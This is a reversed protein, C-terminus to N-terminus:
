KLSSAPATASLSCNRRACGHLPTVSSTEPAVRRASRPAVAKTKDTQPRVPTAPQATAPAPRYSDNRRLLAWLVRANMNALAVAAINTGGRQRQKIRSVWVSRADRRREAVSVVARAGHILLTRLYRDGRKSIGLTVERNGSKRHAPVLGLWAALARGSKFQRADGVAGIMATAALPGIGEVAVLRRCREDEACLRGIKFDYHKIRADSLRLREGMEAMLERMLGGLRGDRDELILALAHRLRSLGKGVVMGREALLGRMENALATRTKILQARVRHLALLDQQEVTKVPVFRMSPRTVAECIGEADNPDSKNSKVYAKVFKPNILKIEHGFKQIERAWYHASGCAEMGVVCRPLNAMFPLVKERTLRKRLLPRGESDVGHLQFVSKALDIGITKIEMEQVRGNDQEITSAVM